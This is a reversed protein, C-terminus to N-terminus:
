IWFVKHRWRSICIQRRNTTKEQPNTTGIGINGHYDVMMRTSSQTVLNLDGNNNVLRLNNSSNGYGLYGTVIGGDQSFQLQPHDAENSNDTDAELLLNVSGTGNIHLDENPSTDPGIGVNGNNHYLNNGNTTFNHWLM